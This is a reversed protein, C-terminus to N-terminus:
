VPFLDLCLFRLERDVWLIGFVCKGEKVDGGVSSGVGRVTV